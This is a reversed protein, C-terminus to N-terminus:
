KLTRKFSEMCDSRMLYKWNQEILDQSFKEKKIYSYIFQKKEDERLNAIDVVKPEVVDPSTLRELWSVGTEEPKQKKNYIEHFKSAKSHTKVENINGHNNNIAENDETTPTETVTKSTCKEVSDRKEEIINKNRNSKNNTDDFIDCDKTKLSASLSYNLTQYRESFARTKQNFTSSLRNM